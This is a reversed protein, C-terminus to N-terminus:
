KRHRAPNVYVDFTELQAGVNTGSDPALLQVTLQWSRGLQRTELPLEYQDIESTLTTTYTTPSFALGREKVARAVSVTGPGVAAFSAKPINYEMNPALTLAGTTLTPVVSEGDDDDGVHKYLSTTGLSYVEDALGALGLSSDFGGSYSFPAFTRSNIRYTETTM